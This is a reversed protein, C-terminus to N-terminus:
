GNTYTLYEKRGRRYVGAIKVAGARVWIEKKGAAIVKVEKAIKKRWYVVVM